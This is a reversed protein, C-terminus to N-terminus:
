SPRGRRQFLAELSAMREQTLGIHAGLRVVLARAGLRSILYGISDGLVASAWVCGLVGGISLDGRAALVASGILGTEGPVPMGLAELAVLAFIAAYGYRAVIPEITLLSAHFLVAIWSLLHHM